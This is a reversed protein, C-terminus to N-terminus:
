DISSCQDSVSETQFCLLSFYVLTLRDKICNGNPWNVNWALKVDDSGNYVVDNRLRTVRSYFNRIKRKLWCSYSVTRMLELEEGQILLGLDSLNILKTMWDNFLHFESKGRYFRRSINLDNVRSYRRTFQCLSHSHAQIIPTVPQKLAFLSRFPLFLLRHIKVYGPCFLVNEINM